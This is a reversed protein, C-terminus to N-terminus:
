QLVSETTRTPREGDRSKWATRNGWVRAPNLRPNTSAPRAAESYGELGTPVVIRPAKPKVNSGETDKVQRNGPETTMNNCRKETVEINEDKLTSGSIYLHRMHAATFRARASRRTSPLPTYSAGPQTACTATSVVSYPPGAPARLMWPPILTCPVQPYSLMLEQKRASAVIGKRGVEKCDWQLINQPFGQLSLTRWSNARGGLYAPLKDLHSSYQMFDRMCTIDSTDAIIRGEWQIEDAIIHNIFIRNGMMRCADTTAENSTRFVRKGSIYQRQGGLHFIKFVIVPPFQSGSFRFRVKCQMSPDRVLDAERPSIQWLIASALCHEADRVTLLMLKFLRRDQYARWFKQIKLAAFVHQEMNNSDM